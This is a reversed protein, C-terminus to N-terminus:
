ESDKALPISLAIRTGRGPRGTISLKGNALRAREEMGILGLGGRGAVAPQTFGVGDDAITLTIASKKYTLAVSVHKADSHQAINRLGEQAVRYICSAAERPLPGPLAAGSFKLDVDRNRESFDRCLARLSAVLGLDDLVSPHLEYAIHRTEESAKVIRAQLNRLRSRRENEDRPPPGDALGGIDFALSALQQCIQDHLERSVRRREEEQATLLSAALAQVEHTHTQAVQELQRRQTIDSVFAVALRGTTTEISSLGIEVPFIAGDKRRAELLLGIGMPRSQMNKFYLKLHQTHRARVSEPILIDLRQGILEEPKYGFMKETNANVLVIKDSLDVAVVSQTASDLLARITHENQQRVIEARKRETIDEMSILIGGTTEGSDGWPTIAWNIWREQGDPRVYKEERASLPQGALGRRHIEKWHEPMDPINDYHSRGLVQERTMGIDSLWRQSVQIARMRRDLMLIATPAQEVFARLIRLEQEQAQKRETIDQIAILITGSDDIQRASLALHHRGTEPLDQEFEFNAIESKKALLDQLLARLQPANCQGKETGFLEQHEVEAPSVRFMNCFTQNVSMVRFGPDIVVLAEHITEVIARAYDGSKQAADRARYIQDTDLMVVLVGEIKGNDTKYPRIRMSYRRGGHATVEREILRGHATVDSFLEDWDAVNLSSAINNFPRGVDGPILNLLTGAVPTFRRMRLDADLVLVPIDVGVLLNTLDHTLVRLETNRHQLEENLTVLEENSSQLEEKATELEENTSQLEENSSLIEENAAKMEEQATEHEAIMSRLHERTSALERELKEVRAGAKPEKGTRALLIAPEVKEFVVLIDQKKGNRRSLPRVDLRVAAPHGLHEFQVSDKHVAAGEKRAKSIATRLDVVLEARVMKLLHFSPQGTAPALYPSVDGQFHVIHLNADVILAPPTYHELLSAEAEKRFDVPPAVAPSKAPAAAGSDLAQNPLSRFGQFASSPVKRVYIRHKRDEVSFVDSYDSISESNGLFLFGGPKLAYQFISLVRRQLAQGMYILVNRCSILDLKSFPPDKALDHRAFVCVDRVFKQIQYGHDAEVFFRKLRAKSVGAVAAETYIGARAREM